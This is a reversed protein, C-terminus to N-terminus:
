LNKYVNTESLDNPWNNSPIEGFFIGNKFVKLESNEYVSSNEYIYIKMYKMHHVPWIELGSYISSLIFMVKTVSLREM